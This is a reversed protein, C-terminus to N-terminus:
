RRPSEYTGDSHYIPEARRGCARCEITQQMYDEDTDKISVYYHPRPSQANPLNRDCEVPPHANGILWFFRTM